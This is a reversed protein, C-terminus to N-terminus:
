FFTTETATSKGRAAPSQLDHQELTTYTQELAAIWARSDFPEPAEGRALRAEQNRVGGLLRDIDQCVAVLIQSVRDQFQLHTLVDEVKERVEQGGAAMSQSSDSLGRALTGFHELVSRITADSSNMLSETQQSMQRATDLASAMAVNVADVNIQIQKGLSGSQDSLKRVEDAVVAFGRGSEGARAAEIAANLALLNTQTAIDAVGAAMRKLERTVTALREFEGMMPKQMELSRNLKTLMAGLEGRSNEIVAVVDEGAGSDRSELMGRLKTLIGDFDRTLGTIADETQLRAIDIHQNWRAMSADAVVHLSQTYPQINPKAADSADRVAVRQALAFRIGRREWYSVGVACALLGFGMAFGPGSAASTWVLLGGGVVGVL